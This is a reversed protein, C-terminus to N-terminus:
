EIDTDSKQDDNLIISLALYDQTLTGKFYWLVKDPTRKILHNEEDRGFKQYLEECQDSLSDYNISNNNKNSLTYDALSRGTKHEFIQCHIIM